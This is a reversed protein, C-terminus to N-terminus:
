LLSLIREERQQKALNRFILPLELNQRVTMDFLLPQQEVLGINLRFNRLSSEAFAVQYGQFQLNGEDPYELFGLISLLTSKGSGNPGTLCYFSGTEICLEDIDLVTRRAYIKKLKEIRFLMQITNKM